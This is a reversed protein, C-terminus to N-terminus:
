LASANSETEQLWLQLFTLWGDQTNPLLSLNDAFAACLRLRQAIETAVVPNQFLHALVM